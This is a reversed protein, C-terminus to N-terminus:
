VIIRIKVTMKFRSVALAPGSYKKNSKSRKVTKGNTKKLRFAMAVEIEAPQVDASYVFRTRFKKTTGASYNPRSKHKVGESAFQSKTIKQVNSRSSCRISSCDKVRKKDCKEQFQM